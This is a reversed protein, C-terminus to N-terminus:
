PHTDERERERIEEGAPHARGRTDAEASMVTPPCLQLSLRSYKLELFSNQRVGLTSPGDCIMMVVSEPPGPVQM